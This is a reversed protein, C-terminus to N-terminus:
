KVHQPFPSPPYPTIKFSSIIHCLPSTPLWGFIVTSFLPLNISPIFCLRSSFCKIDFHFTYWNTPINWCIIDYIYEKSVELWTQMWIILLGCEYSSYCVSMHHAVSLRLIVVLWIIFMVSDYSACYLTMHHDVCMILM